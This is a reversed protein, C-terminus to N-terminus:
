THFMSAKSTGVWKFCEDVKRQDIGHNSLYIFGRSQFAKDISFAVQARDRASGQLFPNFDILPIDPTDFSSAM